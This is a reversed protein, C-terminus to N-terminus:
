LSQRDTKRDAYHTPISKGAAICVMIIYYIIKLKLPVIINEHFTEKVNTITINPLYFFILMHIHMTYNIKEEM